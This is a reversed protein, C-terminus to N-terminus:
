QARKEILVADGNLTVYLIPINLPGMLGPLIAAFAVDHIKLDHKGTWMYVFSSFGIAWWLAVAVAVKM